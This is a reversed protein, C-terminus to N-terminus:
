RPRPSASPANTQVFRIDDLTRKFGANDPQLELSKLAHHEADPLCDMRLLVVAMNNHVVADKPRVRLCATLHDKARPLDNEDLASMGVAYNARFDLPDFELVQQRALGAKVIDRSQLGEYARM